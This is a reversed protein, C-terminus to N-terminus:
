PLVVEQDINFLSTTDEMESVPFAEDILFRGASWKKFLHVIQTYPLSCTLGIFFTREQNLLKRAAHIRKVNLIMIDGGDFNLACEHRNPELTYVRMPHYHLMFGICTDRPMDQHYHAKDRIKFYSASVITEIPVVESCVAIAYDILDDRYNKTLSM